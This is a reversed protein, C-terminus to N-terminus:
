NHITPAADVRNNLLYSSPGFGQKLNTRPLGAGPAGVIAERLACCPTNLAPKRGIRGLGQGGINALRIGARDHERIFSPRDSGQDEELVCIQLRDRQAGIEFEQLQDLIGPYAM